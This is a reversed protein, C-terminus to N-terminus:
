RGTLRSMLDAASQGEVLLVKDRSAEGSQISISSKPVSLAKALLKIVSRNAAGEVAAATVRVKLRGESDLVIENRSAGPQARLQILAGDKGDKM